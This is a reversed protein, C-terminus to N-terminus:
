PKNFFIWRGLCGRNKFTLGEFCPRKWGFCPDNPNWTYVIYMLLGTTSKVKESNDHVQPHHVRNNCRFQQLLLIGSVLWADNFSVWKPPPSFFIYLNYPIKRRIKITNKELKSPNGKNVELKTGQKPQYNSSGQTEACEPGQDDWFEPTLAMAEQWSRLAVQAPLHIVPPPQTACSTQRFISTALHWLTTKQQFFSAPKFLIHHLLLFNVDITAKPTRKHKTVWFFNKSLVAVLSFWRPCM